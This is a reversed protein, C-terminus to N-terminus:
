PAGGAGGLNKGTVADIEIEGVTQGNQILPVIYVKTGNLTQLVPTGATVGPEEVYQQAISKAKEASILNTNNTTNTNNSNNNSQNSINQTNHPTSNTNTTCGSVMVMLVVLALLVMASKKIM